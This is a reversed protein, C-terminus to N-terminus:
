CLGKNSKRHQSIKNSKITNDERTIWQCNEPCYNKTSDIRDITLLDDYGNNWAWQAFIIFDNKWEECMQIGKAGYLYYRDCNSNYCRNKIHSWIRYLRDKSKIGDYKRISCKCKVGSKLKSLDLKVIKRCSECMVCAINRHRQPSYFLDIIKRGNIIDGVHYELNPM